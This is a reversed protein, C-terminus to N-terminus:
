LDGSPEGTSREKLMARVADVKAKFEGYRSPTYGYLKKAVDSPAYKTLLVAIQAAEAATIAVNGVANKNTVHKDSARFPENAAREDTVLDNRSDKGPPRGLLSSLESSRDGVQGVPQVAGLRSAAAEVLADLDALQPMRYTLATDEDNPDTLTVWRQGASDRRVEVMWTFNRRLDGQGELGMTKVQKDQVGILLHMDLKGGRRLMDEVLARAEDCYQAVDRYEDLVLYFPEFSRQVGHGRLDRRREMEIDITKLVASIAAFDNGYGYVACGLWLGPAADPDGVIVRMGALALRTALEHVLTTKGGRSHGVFLLHAAQLLAALWTESDLAQLTQSGTLAPSDTDLAVSLPTQTRKKIAWLWSGGHHERWQEFLSIAKILMLLVAFVAFTLMFIGFESM